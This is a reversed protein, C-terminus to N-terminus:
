SLTQQAARRTVHMLWILALCIAFFVLISTLIAPFSSPGGAYDHNRQAAAFQSAIPVMLVVAGCGITALACNKAADPQAVPDLSTRETAGGLWLMGVAISLLCFVEQPDWRWPSGWTMWSWVGGLIVGFSYSSLGWVLTRRVLRSGPTNIGAGRWHAWCYGGFAIGWSVMMGLLGLLLTGVHGLLLMRMGLGPTPDVVLNSEQPEALTHIPQPENLPSQYGRTVEAWADTTAIGFMLFVVGAAMTWEIRFRFGDGHMRSRNISKPQGSQTPPTSRIRDLSRKTQQAAPRCSRICELVDQMKSDLVDYKEPDNM